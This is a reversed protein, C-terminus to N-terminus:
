SDLSLVGRRIQSFWSRISAPKVNCVKATRMLLEKKISRSTAKDYAAMSNRLVEKPATKFRGECKKGINRHAFKRKTFPKQRGNEDAAYPEITDSHKRTLGKKVVDKGMEEATDKQKSACATKVPKVTPTHTTDEFTRKGTKVIFDNTGAIGKLCFEEKTNLHVIVGNCKVILWGHGNSTISDIKM